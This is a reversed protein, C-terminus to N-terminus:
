SIYSYYIVSSLDGKGELVVEKPITHIEGDDTGIIFFACNSDNLMKSIRQEFSLKAVHKSNWPTQSDVSWFSLGGFIDREVLNWIMGVKNIPEFDEHGCM